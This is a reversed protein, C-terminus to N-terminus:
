QQIKPKAKIDSSESNLEESTDNKVKSLMKKYDKQMEEFKFGSTKPRNEVPRDSDKSFKAPKKSPQKAVPKPPDNKSPAKINTFNIEYAYPDGTNPRGGPKKYPKPLAMYDSSSSESANM